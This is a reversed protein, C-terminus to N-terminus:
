GVRGACNAQLRQMEVSDHKWDGDLYQNVYQLNHLTMRRSVDAPRLRAPLRRLRLKRDYEGDSGDRKRLWMRTLVGPNQYVGRLGTTQGTLHM